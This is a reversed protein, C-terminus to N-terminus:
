SLHCRTTRSAFILNSYPARHSELVLNRDDGAAADPESARVALGEGALACPDHHGVDRM